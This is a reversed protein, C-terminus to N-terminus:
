RGKLEDRKSGTTGPGSERRRPRDLARLASALKDIYYLDAKCWPQDVYEALESPEVQVGYALALFMGWALTPPTIYNEGGIMRESFAQYWVPLGKMLDRLNRELAPGAREHLIAGLEPTLSRYRPVAAAHLAKGDKRILRRDTMEHRIRAILMPELLVLARDVEDNEGLEHMIKAYGIVGAIKENLEQAANGERDDPDFEFPETALAALARRLQATMPRLKEYDDTARASACLAYVDAIGPERRYASTAHQRIRPALDYPERRKGRKGPWTSHKLPVGDGLLTDLYAEAKEAIEPSLHPVALAVTKMTLYTERFHIRSGSIGLQVALPAWPGGEILELVEADLRERLARALEGDSRAVPRFVGATLVAKRVDADALDVQVDERSEVEGSVVKNGGGVVAPLKWEKLEPAGTGGTEAAPIDNGGLCIVQSGVVWFMRGEAIALVARDPGHWENPMSTLYGKTRLERAKDFGGALEPGFIGGYTDRGKWIREVTETELDIRALEGQHTVILNRGMLSLSQSEDGILPVGYWMRKRNHREEPFYWTPRGTEPHIRCLASYRRVGRLYYTMATRTTTYLEQTDPNFTPPTPPNHLGGTYLVPVILEPKGTALDLTHFTRDWPNEELYEIVGEHEAKRRRPTPHVIYDGWKELLVKDGASLPISRQIRELLEGNRGLVEHFSDAPNTRVVVKGAWITAGQDRLSLGPLKESRWIEEGDPGLCYVRMDESGFVIKRGDRSFSAPKLIMGGVPYIWAKRGTRADVAHFVGARDGFYVRKGDTSPSVWVGAPAHYEWVIEGDRARIAYVRGANFAEDCGVYLVGDHYSPSAGIPGALQKEWVTEGTVVNLARFKGAFTGVYVKGEAVIAEVRTAIMEEHFDRYWKREYPGEIVEDTYGSRQYDKHPTPWATQATAPVAPVALALGVVAASRIRVPTM